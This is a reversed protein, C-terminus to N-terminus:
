LYELLVPFERRIVEALRNRARMIRVGANSVSIGLREAIQSYSLEEFYVLRMVLQDSSSLRRIAENMIRRLEVVLIETEPGPNEGPQTISEDADRADTDVAESRPQRLFDIAIRQTIRKLYAPLHSGEWLRLAHQNNELL